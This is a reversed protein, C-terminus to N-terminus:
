DSEFGPYIASLRNVDLVLGVAPLDLIAAHGGM